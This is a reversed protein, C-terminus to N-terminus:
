GGYTFGLPLFSAERMGPLEVLPGEGQGVWCRQAGFQCLTFWTSAPGDFHAFDVDAELGAGTGDDAIPADVRLEDGSTLDRVLLQRGEPCDLVLAVSSEGIWPGIFRSWKTGLASCDGTVDVPEGSGLDVIAYALEDGFTEIALFRGDPSVTMAGLTSADLGEVLTRGPQEPRAADFVQVSVEFPQVLDGGALSGAEPCTGSVTVLTTGDASVVVSRVRDPLATGAAGTLTLEAQECRDFMALAAPDQDDLTPVESPLLAHGFVVDGVTFQYQLLGNTAGNEIYARPMATRGLLAAQAAESREWDVLEEGMVTGNAPDILTQTPIVDVTSGSAAYVVDPAGAASSGPETTTPAPLTSETVVTSPVDTTTVQSPVLREDEGGRTLAVIGIAVIAVVATTAAGARAAQRRRGSSRVSTIGDTPAPRRLQSGAARAMADIRADDDPALDHDNSM